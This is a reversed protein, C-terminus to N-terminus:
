GIAVPDPQVSSKWLLSSQSETSDCGDEVDETSFCLPEAKEKEVNFCRTDMCTLTFANPHSYRDTHSHAHRHPSQSLLRHIDSICLYQSFQQIKSSFFFFFNLCMSAHLWACTNALLIGWWTSIHSFHHICSHLYQYKFIQRRSQQNMYLTVAWVNICLLEWHAVM